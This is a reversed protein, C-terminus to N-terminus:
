SLKKFTFIQVASSTLVRQFMDYEKSNINEYCSSYHLLKKLASIETMAARSFKRFIHQGPSIAGAQRVDSNSASKM